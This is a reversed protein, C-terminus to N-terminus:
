FDHPSGDALDVVGTEEPSFNATHTLYLQRGAPSVTADHIPFATPARVARLFELTEAVKTWPASLPYALVDVDAPTEAYSDGPHFLTPGGSEAIVFGVNGPRPVQDHILAHQGGIASISLSGVETTSGAAFAADAPLGHATVTEPEVLLRAHSNAGLLDPLREPDAHDPHQHTILVADLDRLEEFGSSFNGPDVLVRVDGGEVLLCSHGLHTIRM